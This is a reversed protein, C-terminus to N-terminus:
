SIVVLNSLLGIALWFHESCITVNKATSVWLTMHSITMVQCRNDDTFKIKESVVLGPINMPHNELLIHTKPKKKDSTCLLFLLGLPTERFGLLIVESTNQKITLGVNAFYLEICWIVDFPCTAL